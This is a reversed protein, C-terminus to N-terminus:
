SSTLDMVKAEYRGLASSLPYPIRLRVGDPISFEMSSYQPNAMLILWGYNPDNYYKFSLNDMRMTSKDFIVYKDGSNVEIDIKPVRGCMGDNRFKLYRDYYAM